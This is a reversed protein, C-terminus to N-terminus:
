EIWSSRGLARYLILDKIVIGVILRRGWAKQRLDQAQDRTGQEGFQHFDEFM